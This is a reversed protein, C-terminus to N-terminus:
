NVHVTGIMGAQKHGPVTCYFGYDGAPLNLVVSAEAGSQITGTDILPSDIHFDHPIFGANKITLTFDTGAPVDFEKPVFKIDQAEITTGPGSMVPEPTAVPETAVPSAIAVNTLSGPDAVKLLAGGIATGFTNVIVYLDGTADFALGNPKNLGDLVIESSGDVAVRVISGAGMPEGFFNSTLQTAYITGDPAAAVAVVTTLGGAWNSVSGDPAVKLIGASGPAFPAGSLLGVLLTGDPLMALGTPVPDIEDKGQRAPNPGLGPLGPIVALVKLENTALDVTYVTNGGADSVYAIGNAVILDYCNSDVANPDPNNSLEYQGINAINTSEGTALDISIVSNENPLQTVIPTSPGAGGNVFILKGEVLAIGSPGVIETGFLYSPFGDAVVTKTGDPALASIFGTEGRTAVAEVAPPTGVGPTAFIADSGASGGESIYITGDDAIALYRPNELGDAIVSVNAPLPGVSPPTAASEQAASRGAWVGVTAPGIGAAAGFRLLQRRDFRTRILGNSREQYSM